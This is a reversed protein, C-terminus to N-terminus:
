VTFTWSWPWHTLICSPPLLDDDDDDDFIIVTLFTQSIIILQVILHNKVVSINTSLKYNPM